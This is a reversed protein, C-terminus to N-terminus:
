KNHYKLAIYINVICLLILPPYILKLLPWAAKMINDFGFVSIIYMIIFLVLICLSRPVRKRLVIEHVYEVTVETLASATTLCAFTVCIGMFLLGYKGLVTSTITALLEVDPVTQLIEAHTAGLFIFGVYVMSILIAGIICAHLAMKMIEQHSTINLDHCKQQINRYAVSCFFLAALLDMTGYGITMSSLFVETATRETTMIPNAFYLGVIILLSFTIIKVPALVWGIIDVVRSQNSIVLYIAFFYLLDFLYINQLVGPLLPLLTNFVTAETRPIAVLPGIMLILFTVVIFAPAKGIREFFKWYDGEYLVGAFLGIFPMGVGSILFGLMGISTHQGSESGLILPFLMSGAGFFMAFLALGTPIVIKTNKSTSM